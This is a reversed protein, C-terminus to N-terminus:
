SRYMYYIDGGHERKSLAGKILLGKILDEVEQVPENLASAVDQVRVPRRKAMDLILDASPAGKVAKQTSPSGVVIEAVEGFFSKIDELRKRDLSLAKEDAPPRVVTNLQVRDPSIERIAQRLGAVEKESDNIGALFIVELYLQGRYSKRLEKIGGIVTQLRLDPHPRHITRFTEEFVSSLTPMIVHAGSVRERVDERWLLSGNTLLAIRRDTMEKVLDIIQDIRSHLTPEGSGSLTIVDPTVRELKHGLEAIVDSVSCFEGPELTSSTTRGVQCYLCDYSCTKAPVLDIGLSLGLRRSTVPGFVYTM